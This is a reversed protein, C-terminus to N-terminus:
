DDSSGYGRVQVVGEGGFSEGIVSAVLSKDIKLVAFADEQNKGEWGYDVLEAMFIAAVLKAKIEDSKLIYNEVKTKSELELGIIEEALQSYADVEAVRMAKLAGASSATSTGFGVRSILRSPDPFQLGTLESIVGLPVSVTVKAVDTKEDYMVENEVVGRIKGKTKSEASGVFIGNMMDTVKEEKRIKVGYVSEVLARKATLKAIRLSMMKKRDAMATGSIFCVMVIAVLCVRILSFVHKNM